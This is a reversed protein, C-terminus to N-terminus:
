RPLMAPMRVPGQHGAGPARTRPRGRLRREHAYQGASLGPPPPPPPAVEGASAPVSPGAPLDDLPQLQAV